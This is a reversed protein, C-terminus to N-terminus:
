ASGGGGAASGGLVKPVAIFPPSPAPAMRMLVENSLMPGPEDAAPAAATDLPTALPEVGDLPLARLTEFHDLVAALEHRLREAEDPPIELRALRALRMVDAQSLPEPM